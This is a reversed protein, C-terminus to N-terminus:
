LVRTCAVLGSIAQSFRGPLCLASTVVVEERDRAVLAPKRSGVHNLSRPQKDTGLLYVPEHPKGEADGLPQCAPRATKRIARHQERSRDRRM